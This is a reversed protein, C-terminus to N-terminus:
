PPEAFERGFLLVHHPHHLAVRLIQDFKDVVQEIGGFEFGAREREFEGGYRLCQFLMNALSGITQLGITQNANPPTLLVPSQMGNGPAVLNGNMGAAIRLGFANGAIRTGDCFQAMSYAAAVTSMENLTISGEIRPGVVAVLLVSPRYRATAYYITDAEPEAVSIAFAGDEDTVAQGISVPVDATARYLTVPVGALPTFGAAGSQVTGALVKNEM